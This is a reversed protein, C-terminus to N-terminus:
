GGASPIARLRSTWRFPSRGHRPEQSLVGAPFEQSESYGCEQPIRKHALCFQRRRERRGDLELVDRWVQLYRGLDEIAHKQPQFSRSRAEICAAQAVDGDHEIQALDM